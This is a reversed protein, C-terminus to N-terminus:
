EQGPAKPPATPLPKEALRKKAAARREPSMPEFDKPVDAWETWDFPVEPIRTEQTETDSM